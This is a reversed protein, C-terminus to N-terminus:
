KDRRLIIPKGTSAPHRHDARDHRAAPQRRRACRQGDADRHQENSRQEDDTVTFAVLARQTSPNDSNDTYTVSRSCCGPIEAVTAPGTLTLENGSISGSIDSTNTFALQDEGAAFNQTIQVMASDITASGTDALTLGPAIATAPNGQTYTLSGSTTIAPSGPPPPTTIQFSTSNFGSLNDTTDGAALMYFGATNYSLNTFTAVGNVAAVSTTSGGTIRDVRRSKTDIGLSVTSNDGAIVNGSQDEIKVVVAPIPEDRGAGGAPEQHHVGIADAGAAGTRCNHFRNSNFGSLNDTSDSVGWRTIM